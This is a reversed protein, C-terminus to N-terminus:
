HCKASGTDTFTAGAEPVFEWSYGTPRLTLKLVGFTDNNRVVSNPRPKDINSHNRGGMGVVFQTLGNPNANGDADQPAFREYHHDHGVLVLEAGAEQLAVWLDRTATRNGGEASSFRPHHLFALTCAAPHAALDARLWQEQPSGAGCGGAESCNSNLAVVHWSGVNKSYYGKSPDGAAAGFYAFYGAADPTSYEHNGPVPYTIDKFRGWSLDYSRQFEALTGDEYQLDGVALVKDPKMALVLDSTELMRCRSSSGLGGNFGSYDPDCAIDGAAAVVVTRAASTRTDLVRLPAGSATAQQYTSATTTGLHDAILHVSTHDSNIYCVKGDTGIPAIAVNPDISGVAFNVNSAVPMDTVDSSVLLGNGPGQALVLTLNVVAADGPSGAVTFCRRGDPPIINGSTRTDLVRLPAGSATAQQYTSAAITGLHDAVLDVSTHDSNIYCVKGDTGIPAIAVNPDISGVAFNVNSAVPVDTVDSSVLLGNGPGQALVLTLNVVAADGPSGAVTFCRRGDPPIINGSTRTDLVRLPAGSATAQQYTSAAITGLHDAVLDVSTHDSNIYCVKGDTGIPAIAVNPDISGVAFNVNSAVPMDTVDSSVLLGNGPGQALVPTLNVM